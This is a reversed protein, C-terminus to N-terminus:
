SVLELAHQIQKRCWADRDFPKQVVRRPYKLAQIMAEALREPTEGVFINKAPWTMERPTTVLPRGAAMAEYASLPIMPSVSTTCFATIRAYDAPISPRVEYKGIGSIHELNQGIILVNFSFKKRAIKVAEAFLNSRKLEGKYERCFYGLTPIRPFPVDPVSRSGICDVSTQQGSYKKVYQRHPFPHVFSLMGYGVHDVPKIHHIQVVTRKPDPSLNAETDRICIYADMGPLPKTSAIAGHRAINRKLDEFLWGLDKCYVNIKPM